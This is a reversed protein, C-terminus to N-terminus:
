LRKTLSAQHAAFERALRMGGEKARQDDYEEPCEHRLHCAFLEAMQKEADTAEASAVESGAGGGEASAVESGAGGGEAGGSEADLNGHYASYYEETGDGEASGNAAEFNGYYASYDEDEDEENEEEEEEDSNIWDDFYDDPLDMLERRGCPLTVM